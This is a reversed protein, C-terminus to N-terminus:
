MEKKESLSGPSSSRVKSRMDRNIPAATGDMSRSGCVALRQDRRCVHLRGWGREFVGTGALIGISPQPPQFGQKALPAAQGTQTGEDEDRQRRRSPTMPIIGLHHARLHQAFDM